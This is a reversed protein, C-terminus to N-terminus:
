QENLIDDITISQKRKSPTKRSRPTPKKIRTASSKLPVVAPPAKNIEPTSRAPPEPSSTLSSSIPQTAETQTSQTQTSQTQGSNTQNAEKTKSTQLFWIGLVAGGGLMLFILAAIPLARSTRHNQAYTFSFDATEKSLVRSAVSQKPAELFIEAPQQQPKQASDDSLTAVAASATRDFNEKEASQKEPEFQKESAFERPQVIFQQIKAEFRPPETSEAESRLRAQEAFQREQELWVREAEFRLREQEAHLRQIEPTQLRRDIPEPEGNREIETSSWHRTIPPFEPESYGQKLRKQEMPLEIHHVKELKEAM